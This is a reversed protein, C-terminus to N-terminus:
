GTVAARRGAVPRWAIRHRWSDVTAQEDKARRWDLLKPMVKALAEGDVDLLSQLSALDTDQVAAWFRDDDRRGVPVATTATTQPWFREHQFPYTPLGMRGAGA